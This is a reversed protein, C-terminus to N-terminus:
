EGCMAFCRSFRDRVDRDKIVVAEGFLAGCKTGGIYFADACEALEKLEVDSSAALGYALRAGDIYLFLRHKQLCRFAGQTRRPIFRGLETPFSIYVARPRCVHARSM